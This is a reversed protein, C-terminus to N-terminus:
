SIETVEASEMNPMSSELSIALGVTLSNFIVPNPLYEAFLLNHSSSADTVFYGTVHDTPSGGSPQFFALVSNVSASGDVESRSNEWSVVQRAYGMFVPELAAMDAITSKPTLVPAGTFLGVLCSHLQGGSATMLNLLGLDYYTTYVAAMIINGIFFSIERGM